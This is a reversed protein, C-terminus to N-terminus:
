FPEVNTYEEPIAEGHINKYEKSQKILDAIWLPTGEPIDINDEWSFYKVENEPNLPLIGKPLAMIAAINAYTKGDVQNHIIQIQCSKGLINKLDFGQLEEDTFARGRWAELDKRLQAKQHLSLTYRKSIARPKDEENIEIREEPIEWIILVKRIEKDWKEQYQTGLDYLGICAALKVGEEMIPYDGGEPKKAILPM